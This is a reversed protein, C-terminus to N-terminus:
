IICLSSIIHLYTLSAAQYYSNTYILTDNGYCSLLDMFQLAKEEGSSPDKAWKRFLPLLFKESYKAAVECREIVCMEKMAQFYDNTPVNLLLFYNNM